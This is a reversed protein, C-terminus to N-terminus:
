VRICSLAAAGFASGVESGNYSLREFSVGKHLLTAAAGLASGVVSVEPIYTEFSGQM